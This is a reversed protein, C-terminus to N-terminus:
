RPRIREFYLRIYRRYGPPIDQKELMSEAHREFTEHVEEYGPASFGDEAATEIVQSRSPGEGQQLSVEVDTHKAQMKTSDGMNDPDHSTGIGGGKDGGQDHGQGQKGSGQGGQKKLLLLGGQGGKGGPMLTITKGDGDGGQGGKCGCRAGKNFRELRVKFGKGGRQLQQLLRRLEELRERLQQMQQETSQDRAM